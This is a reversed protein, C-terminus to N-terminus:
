QLHGPPPLTSQIKLMEQPQTQGLIEQALRTSYIKAGRRSLHFGDTYDGPNLGDISRCDLLIGGASVIAGRLDDTIKYSEPLPMAVFVMKTRRERAYTLLRTLREYKHPTSRSDQSRNNIARNLAQASERYAPIMSLLVNKIRERNSYFRSVASLLFDVRDGMNFIDCTFAETMAALGGFYGGLRDVHLTNQDSLQNRVFGVVVLDIPVHGPGIIYRFLYYWDLMTTDDPNVRQFSAATGGQIKWIHRFVELDIGERTLSNGLFLIHKGKSNGLNNLIQPIGKIHQIDVSLREQFFRIGLEMLGLLCIVAM